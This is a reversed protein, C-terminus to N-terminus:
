GMVAALQHLLRSTKEKRKEVNNEFHHQLKVRCHLCKELNKGCKKDIMTLRSRVIAPYKVLSVIIMHCKRFSLSCKTMWCPLFSVCCILKLLPRLVVNPVCCLMVSNVIPFVVDVNYHFDESLHTVLWETCNLAQLISSFRGYISSNLTQTSCNAAYANSELNHTMKLRKPRARHQEVKYTRWNLKWCM